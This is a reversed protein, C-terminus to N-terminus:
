NIGKIHNANPPLFINKTKDTDIQEYGFITNVLEGVKQNAMITLHNGEAYHVEVENKCYKSLGYDDSIPLTAVLPRILSVNSQLVHDPFGNYFQTSKIRKYLSFLIDRQYQPSLKVEGEGFSIILDLREDLTKAKELEKEFLTKKKPILLDVGRLVLKQQLLDDDKGIIAVLLEKMLEQSSDILLLKGTFGALELLYTTHLAVVGGYSYGVINFTGRKKVDELIVDYVDKAIDEISENGKKYDFVIGYTESCLVKAVGEMIVPSGEIGPILFTKHQCPTDSSIASNLRICPEFVAPEEGILNILLNLDIINEKTEEATAGTELATGSERAASIEHLKAFTMSRIDQPSLFVEFERELTQKIEVAMMSDMGIEALTSHQSVNKLDTLGLINVVTDVINNASSSSKKEAVVVSSVIAEPQCLFTDLVQLCNSIPQQLTGGIVVEINQDNMNAVLGVDGVAGWQIALAPLNDERRAEMVREMVSNSFGYNTQGLNGRGCSVSSFVVFHDLEPCLQRSLKDLYVTARAKPGASVNFTEESMNEFLGDSLVVALNFIGGVPGHKAANLLLNRAGEECTIDDTSIQVNAGYERWINIRMSQYGNVVGKRSNLILNKCGRLVLWDSLELGFGGLGGAVIYSKDDLCHFRAKAEIVNKQSIIQEPPLDFVKILVKGMHKGTAMYRFAQELQDRNFVTRNLPKLVGKELFEKMMNKISVRTDESSDYIGDLMVGHFSAGKRFLDMGLQTNKSIDFKGIELFRGGKALCRVSAFLKDDALSNLVIDVGRGNTSKMVMQEFSTDRSNGIDEEAIQPFHDKIFQRKEPTGVTTLVRCGVYLAINIAAQGVGGTGSHILVTDGKKICGQVFFGYIVTGYVVPITAAEELTLCDPVEWIFDYTPIVQTCMGRNECFGIVATGDEIFGAYEFGIVCEQEIRSATIVDPNLKNTALMIDRFNLACYQVNVLQSGKYGRIRTSLNGQYWALSSLDGRTGVNVYAYKAKVLKHPDIKLHRYTGWAGNKYVNVALDKKLMDTFIDNDISFEPLNEDMILVGRAKKGDGEKRLCNMFGLLGNYKQKESYIIVRKTDKSSILKQLNAVWAFNDSDFKLIESQTIDILPAKRLLIISRQNCPYSAVTILGEMDFTTGLAENTIIFGGDKLISLCNQLIETKEEQTLDSAVAILVAKSSSIKKDEVAIEPPLDDLQPNTGTSLVTIDPQILPLDSLVQAVIPALIQIPHASYEVVKTSITEENELVIQTMIRVIQDITYVEETEHYPVFINKELVAESLRKKRSISNAQIGRIEIGGSKVVDLHKYYYVDMDKNDAPLQGTLQLHHKPDVTLRDIATPVYLSRTDVSLIKLQLMNDMFTVWNNHWTIKGCSADLTLNTLSRFLGKYQYGRLRLEKYIDKSSLVFEDPTEKACINIMEENVDEPIYTKGTVIATGSEVIEFKGSVKQIVVIFDISGDKTLNTARHFRVNEFVVPMEFFSKGRLMSLTDWVLWLYGTAPFLNRGDVCHGAIYEMEEEKLSINVSREGAKIMKQSKYTPVYWHETHNWKVLPSIM